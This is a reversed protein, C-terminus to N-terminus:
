PKPKEEKLFVQKLKVLGRSTSSQTKITLKKGDKSISYEEKVYIQNRGERVIITQAGSHVLKKKEWNTRSVFDGRGDSSLNICQSGDLAFKQVVTQQEGDITFQRVIQVEGDTQVIRMTLNKPLDDPPMKPPAEVSNSDPSQGGTSIAIKRIEPSTLNTQSRDPDLIWTGSLDVAQEAAPLVGVLGAGALIILWFNRM